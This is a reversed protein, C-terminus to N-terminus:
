SHQNLYYIVSSVVKKFSEKDDSHNEQYFTVKTGDRSIRSFKAYYVGLDKYTNMKFANGANTVFEIEKTVKFTKLYSDIIKDIYM